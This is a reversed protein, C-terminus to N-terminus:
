YDQRAIDLILVDSIMDAGMDKQAIERLAERLVSLTNAETFAGEFGGINAHDFLVRLFSDRLKPERLLVADKKGVPVEISLSMVVMSAVRGDKVIPVVFQNNMKVYESDLATADDDKSEATKAHDEEHDEAKEEAHQEEEAPAPRLFIGAGVGAGSGVLLLVIPFLKKLM